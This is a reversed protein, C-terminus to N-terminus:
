KVASIRDAVSRLAKQFFERKFYTIPRTGGLQNLYKTVFRMKKEYYDKFLEQNQQVFEMTGIVAERHRSLNYAGLTRTPVDLTRFILKTLEYPDKRTDDYTLYAIWWLGAIGHKVFNGQSPSGILWHASIYDAISDTKKEIVSPWRKCMYGYFDVHALYTWLRIDSAQLPTLSKYAEYIIKSNEFDFYSSADPIMLVPAKAPSINQAYLIDEESYGAFKETEYLSWLKGEKVGRRLSEVYPQRFIKQLEM